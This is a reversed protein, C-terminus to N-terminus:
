NNAELTYFHLQNKYISRVKQLKASSLDIRFVEKTSKKSNEVKIM